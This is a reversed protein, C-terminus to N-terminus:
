LTDNFPSRDPQGVVNNHIQEALDLLGHFLSCDLEALLYTRYMQQIKGAEHLRPVAKYPSGYVVKVSQNGHM